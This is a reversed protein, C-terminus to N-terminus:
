SVEAEMEEYTTHSELLDFMGECIACTADFERWSAEDQIPVGEREMVGCRSADLCARSCFEALPECDEVDFAGLQLRERHRDITFYQSPPCSSGCRDSTRMNHGKEM